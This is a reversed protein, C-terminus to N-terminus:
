QLLVMKRSFEQKEVKLQYLYIGSSVKGGSQNTGDWEVTHTGASFMDDAITKVKQGLINYISLTVPKKSPLSFQILTSPNFPNPYNQELVFTEPLINEHDTVDTPEDLLEDVATQLAAIATSREFFSLPIEFNILTSEHTTRKWAVPQDEFQPNDTRSDFTYIIEHNSDIFNVYTVLPIGQPSALPSCHQQVISSDFELNPYGTKQSKAGILESSLINPPSLITANGSRNTIGLNNVYYEFYRNTPNNYTITYVNEALNGWRGFLIIKGGLSLYYNLHETIGGTAITQAIDDQLGSEAGIVIMGYDLLSFLNLKENEPLNYYSSDSYYDYNYGSLAERLFIGTEAENVLNNAINNSRNVALIRNPELVAARSVVVPAETTSSTNGDLDVAIVHYSHFSNGLDIADDYYYNTDIDDLFLSDKFLAYHSFDLEENNSAWTVAIAGLKPFAHIYEPTAPNIDPRGSITNHVISTQGDINVAKIYFTYEVTNLM